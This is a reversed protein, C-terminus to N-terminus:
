SKVKRETLEPAQVGVTRVCDHFSNTSEGEGAAGACGNEYQVL